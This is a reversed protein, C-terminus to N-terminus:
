RLLVMKRFASGTGTQLHCLYVGSSVLTGKNDQGSWIVEHIGPEQKADILTKVEEGLLNYIRLIVYIPEEGVLSYRIATQPNFPNPYNQELWHEYPIEEGLQEVVGTLEDSSQFIEYQDQDVFQAWIVYLGGTSHVAIYPQACNTSSNAIDSRVSWSSDKCFSYYLPTGSGNWVVHRIDKFDLAIVPQFGTSIEYPVVWEQGDYFTYYIHYGGGREEWVVHPHNQSDLAIKPECSQGTPRSINVPDTWVDGDYKAYHIDLDGYDMWVLHVHGRSDVAIEPYSSDVPDDTFNQPTSWLDGDYISFYIDSQGEIDHWFVYVKGSDDAALSPCFSYGPNNTINVPSSWSVGDYLTWVIEGSQYDVWAVHPQGHVDIVIDPVESDTPGNSINLPASWVNGNYFCYLIENNGYTDDMWVVHFHGWSDVAMSPRESRGHTNSVNVPTTWALAHLNAGLVILLGLPIGTWLRLLSLKKKLM